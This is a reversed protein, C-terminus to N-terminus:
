AEKAPVGVVTVGAKVRSGVDVNWTVSAPVVLDVRSGFKILGIRDGARVHDGERVTCVIRRALVGAIQIVVVSGLTTSLTIANRENELSAGRRFAAQFRGPTYQVSEVVGTAPARNVHVDFISLFISLAQVAGEPRIEVVRGDAPALLVGGADSGPYAREPDRFFFLVFVLLLFWLLGLWLSVFLFSLISAAGLGGVYPVVDRAFRLKPV